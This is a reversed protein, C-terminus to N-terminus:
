YVGSTFLHWVRVTTLETNPFAWKIKELADKLNEPVKDGLKQDLQKGVRDDVEQLLTGKGLKVLVFLGSVISSADPKDFGVTDVFPCFHTKM